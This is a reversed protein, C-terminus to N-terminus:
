QDKLYCSFTAQKNVDSNTVIVNKKGVNNANWVADSTSNLSTREWYFRSAPTEDTIDTQGKYLTAQLVTNIDGNRFINGNTSYVELRYALNEEIDMQIDEPAPSWDTVKNGYEVKSLRLDLRKGTMDGIVRSELTLATYQTTPDLSVPVNKYTYSATQWQGTIPILQAPATMVISWNPNYIYSRFEYNRGVADSRFRTSVTLDRGNWNLDTLRAITVDQYVAITKATNTPAITIRAYPLGDETNMAILVPHGGFDDNTVIGETKKSNRLLNRGGIEIKDIKTDLNDTVQSFTEQSVKKVISDELVEISANNLTVMEAIPAIIDDTYGMADQYAKTAKSQAISKLARDIAINLDKVTENYLRYKTDVNSVEIPSAVEDALADNIATILNSYATDYNGKANQLSLRYIQQLDTDGILEYVRTDFTDKAQSLLNIYSSIRNSETNSIVGDRFAENIYNNTATIDNSLSTLDSNIQTKIQDTYAKAEEKAKDAVKKSIADIAQEMVAGLLAVAGKYESFSTRVAEAEAPTALQDAIATNVTDVLSTYKSDYLTKASALDTKPQGELNANQYLTTYRADFLQKSEDLSQLFGRLRNYEADYLIGDKFSTEIYDETQELAGTLDLIDQELIDKAADTYQNASTLAQSIDYAHKESTVRLLIAQAQVSLESSHSSVTNRIPVLEGDTYQVANDYSEQAKERAIADIAKNASAEYLNVAQAYESFKTNVDTVEEATAKSDEIATQIASILATHKADLNLKASRLASEPTDKLYPNVILSDYNANFGSKASNLTNIYNGIGSAELSSIIGDKFSNEIYFETNQLSEELSDIATTVDTRISDAYQNAENLVAGEVRAFETTVYEADAKLSIEFANRQIETSASTLQQVIPFLQGDTYDIADKRAKDGHSEGIQDIAGRMASVLLQIANRYEIFAADVLAVESEDAKSDAIVDTITNVLLNYKADYNSKAISLLSQSNADTHVNGMLDTYERDLEAKKTALNRIESKIIRAETESIIGDKFADDILGDLDELSRLIDDIEEQIEQNLQNAYQNASNIIEIKDNATMGLSYWKGNVKVKPTPM